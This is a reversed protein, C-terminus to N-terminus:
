QVRFQYLTYWQRICYVHSARTAFMQRLASVTNKSTASSVVAVEIWKSYADIVVLLMHGEVPGAYDIHIRHWPSEPCLWPQLTTRQPNNQNEDCIRCGKAMLEIDGDIGPWWIYSRAVSKMQVIGNHHQHLLKLLPQRLKPPVVVRAGRLICGEFLSLEDKFKAYEAISEDSSWGSLLAQYVRALIPDQQVGRKIMDATVVSDDLEQVLNVYECPAEDISSVIPLPLRSLADCNAHDVGKKHHLEYDYGALTLAWRQIRASAQAPIPRNENFLGLLPKHDSVLVFKNGYLYQHFKTVGFVCSLGERDLQSYNKEAKSLSRSAYAIPREVGDIIHSLVAGLGYPSADCALVIPLQPDFHVLLNDSKLLSKVHNFSQTQVDTWCWKVNKQLLKYLPAMSSSLNPLFKGYYNVIGLWARLESVNEPPPADQVAAVKEDTPRRGHKDIIHGLYQVSPQYFSCKEKCLKLGAEQLRTLVERLNAEHEKESSGTVLIDDLYVCVGSIGQLLQDLTRQFISPAVSVGYPLRTPM